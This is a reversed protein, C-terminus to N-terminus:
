FVTLSCGSSSSKKEQEQEASCSGNDCYGKKGDGTTCENGNQSPDATEFFGDSENCETKSCEKAAPM